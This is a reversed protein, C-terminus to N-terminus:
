ISAKNQRVIIPLEDISKNDFRFNETVMSSVDSTTKFGIGEAFKVPTSIKFNPSSPM